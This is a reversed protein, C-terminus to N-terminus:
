KSSHSSGIIEPMRQTDSSISIAPPTSTKGSSDLIFDAVSRMTVGSPPSRLARGVDDDAGPAALFEHRRFDRRTRAEVGDGGHAVVPQALDLRRQDQLGPGGREGVAEIRDYCIDDRIASREVLLPLKGMADAMYDFAAILAPGGCMTYRTPLAVRREPPYLDRMAPHVLFM